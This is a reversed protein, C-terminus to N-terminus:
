MTLNQNNINVQFCLVGGEKWITFEQFFFNSFPVNKEALINDDGDTGSIRFQNGEERELKWVQFEENKLNGSLQYSAIVDLFWFCEEKEAITKIGDTLLLGLLYSYYHETGTFDCYFDNASIYPNKM